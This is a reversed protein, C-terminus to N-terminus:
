PSAHSAHAMSVATLWPCALLLSSGPLFTLGPGAAQVSYPQSQLTVMSPGLQTVEAKILLWLNTSERLVPSGEIGPEPDLM